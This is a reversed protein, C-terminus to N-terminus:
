QNTKLSFYRSDAGISHKRTLTKVMLSQRETKAASDQFIIVDM